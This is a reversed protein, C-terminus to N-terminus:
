KTKKDKKKDSLAIAVKNTDELAKILASNGEGKMTIASTVLRDSGSM